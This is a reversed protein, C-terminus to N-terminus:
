QALQKGPIDINPLEGELAEVLDHFELFNSHNLGMLTRHADIVQLRLNNEDTADCSLEKMDEVADIPQESLVFIKAFGMSEMIRNIDDSDCVITPKFQFQNQTHIAIKALFGLATSDISAAETLDIIFSKLIDFQTLSKIFRNLAPSHNVKVDGSLKLVQTAEITTHQIRGM